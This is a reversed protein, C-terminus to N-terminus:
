LRVEPFVGEPLRTESGDYEGPVRIKLNFLPTSISYGDAALYCILKMGDTLGDEIVKPSTSINYVDAKSAIGHIDLKPQHVAKLNYPKKAEPLFTHTFKVQIRHLIDKVNFDIAM